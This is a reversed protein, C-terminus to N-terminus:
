ATATLLDAAIAALLDCEDALALHPAAYARQVGAAQENEAAADSLHDAAYEVVLVANEPDTEDYVKYTPDTGIAEYLDARYDVEASTFHVVSTISM